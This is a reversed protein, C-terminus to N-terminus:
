ILTEANAPIACLSIELLEWTKVRCYGSALPEVEKPVFGVSVASLIGAKALGCYEDAKTSVGAPAFTIVAQLQNGVVQAFAKGIPSKRDHDALVIPNARYNKLDVGTPEMIDKVRDPTATSAVVRIQRPGLGTASKTISSSLSATRM